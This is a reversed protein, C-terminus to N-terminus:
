YHQPLKQHVTFPSMWGYVHIWEGGFEGSMWALVYFQATGHAIFFPGQQNVMKFILTYMVKGFDRLIGDGQGPLRLNM